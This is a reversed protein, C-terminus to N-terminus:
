PHVPQDPTLPLRPVLGAGIALLLPSVASPPSNSAPATADIDACAGLLSRLIEFSDQDFADGPEDVVLMLPTVGSHRENSDANALRDRALIVDGIWAAPRSRRHPHHSSRQIWRRGSRLSRRNTVGRGTPVVQQDQLDCGWGELSLRKCVDRRYERPAGSRRSPSGSRCRLYARSRHAAERCRDCHPLSM